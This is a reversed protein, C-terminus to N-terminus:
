LRPAPWAQFTRLASAWQGRAAPRLGCRTRTAARAEPRQPPASRSRLRRACLASCGAAHRQGQAPSQLAAGKKGWARQRRPGDPGRSAALAKPAWPHESPGPSWPRHQSTNRGNAPDRAAPGSGERPLPVARSAQAAHPPCAAPAPAPCAAPSALGAAGLGRGAWGRGPHSNRDRLCLAVCLYNETNGM